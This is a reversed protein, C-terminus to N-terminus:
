PEKVSAQARYIPQQDVQSPIGTATDSAKADHTVQGSSGKGDAVADVPLRRIAAVVFLTQRAQVMYGPALPLNRQQCEFEEVLFGDHKLRFTEAILWEMSSHADQDVLM